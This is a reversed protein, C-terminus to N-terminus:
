STTSYGRWSRLVRSGSTATRRARWPSTRFPLLQFASLSPRFPGFRASLRLRLRLPRFAALPLTSFGVEGATRYTPRGATSGEQSRLPRRDGEQPKPPAQCTQPLLCRPPGRQHPPYPHDHRERLGQLRTRVDRCPGRRLAVRRPRTPDGRAREVIARSLAEPSNTYPDRARYGAIAQPSLRHVGYAPGDLRRRFIFAAVLTLTIIPVLFWLSLDALSALAVVAVVEAVLISTLYLKFM